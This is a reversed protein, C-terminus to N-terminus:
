RLFNMPSGPFAVNKDACDIDIVQVSNERYNDRNLGGFIYIKDNDNGAAQSCLTPFFSFKNRVTVWRLGVVELMFVELNRDLSDGIEVKGGVVVLMRKNVLYHTSHMHRPAPPQGSTKLIKMNPSQSHKVEILYTANILGANTM